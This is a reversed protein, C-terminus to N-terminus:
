TPTCTAPTTARGPALPMFPIALPNLGCAIDLVTGPPAIGQLIEHYFGPFLRLREQTSAHHAMIRLCAARLAEPDAAAVRLEALWREYRMEGPLYAATVQHLKRRTAKEADRMSTRRNGAEREAVRRVLGPEIERYKSSKLVEGAIQGPVDMEGEAAM